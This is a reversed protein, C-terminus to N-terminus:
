GYLSAAADLGNATSTLTDDGADGHVSPAVQAPFGAATVKDDGDGLDITSGTFGFDPGGNNPSGAGVNCDVTHADVSQCSSNDGTVTVAGNEHFIWHSVGDWGVSLDNQEGPEAFYVLTAASVGDNFQEVEFGVHAAQAGQATVLIGVAFAAAIAARLRM